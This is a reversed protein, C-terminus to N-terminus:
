DGRGHDAGEDTRTRPSNDNSGAAVAQATADKWAKWGLEACKVRATLRAVGSFAVGDELVAEDPVVKGRGRIMALFAEATSEAVAVPRGVLLDTLVSTSAKSIACGEGAYSVDAVVGDRIAVRLTVEDGCTPNVRHAEADYPERLGVGHPNKAHDLIVQQYLDSSLPEVSM